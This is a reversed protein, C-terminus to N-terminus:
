THWNRTDGPQRAAPRTTDADDTGPGTRHDPGGLDDWSGSHDSSAGHRAPWGWWRASLPTWKSNRKRRRNAVVHWEAVRPDRTALRSFRRVVSPCGVDSRHPPPRRGNDLM